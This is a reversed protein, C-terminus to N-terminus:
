QTYKRPLSLHNGETHFPQIRRGTDNAIEAAWNDAQPLDKKDKGLIHVYDACAHM